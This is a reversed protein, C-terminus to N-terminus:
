KKEKNINMENLHRIDSKIKQYHYGESKLTNIEQELMLITKQKQELDNKLWKLQEERLTDKNQIENTSAHIDQLFKV